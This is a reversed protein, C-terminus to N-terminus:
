LPANVMLHTASIKKGKERRQGPTEARARAPHRICALRRM